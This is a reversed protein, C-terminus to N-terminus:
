NNVLTGCHRQKFAADAELRWLTRGDTTTALPPTNALLPYQSANQTLGLTWYHAGDPGTCVRQRWEDASILVKLSPNFQAADLLEKRWGDAQAIAPDEWNEVVWAAQRQRSYFPLDFFYVNLMVLVDDPQAADRLALGLSKNSRPTTIFAAAVVLAICCCAAAVCTLAARQSHRAGGRTIADALLFALPPLAPLIYGVLKSAPISFFVLILLAWVAMLRRVGHPDAASWFSKRLLLPSWLTWPLAMLLLAPLYFFWPNANNFGSGTFREFHQYIFFYHFFEPYRAQMLWCWPLAVVAFALLAPPWLLAWFGRGDRRLLLWCLLIGGPLVLGILGKALVALAALTATLVSRARWPEGRARRLTTDAGSLVCAAILGAVLMDLNAFGAGGFFLPLTVVILLTARAAASSHYRRVFAYTAYLALVAGLTSPLRAAWENMGFVNMSAASLWYFLPPKHFYPLGNLLPTSLDGHRLMDWAVGSYRGEDPLALPRLGNLMLLWLAAGILLLTDSSRHRLSPHAPSGPPANM